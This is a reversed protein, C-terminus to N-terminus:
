SSENSFNAIATVRPGECCSRSVTTYVLLLGSGSFVNRPNIRVKYIINMYIINYKEFQAGQQYSLKKLSVLSVRNATKSLM